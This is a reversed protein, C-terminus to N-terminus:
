WFSGKKNQETTRDLLKAAWADFADDAMLEAELARERLRDYTRQWMGKRRAPFPALM